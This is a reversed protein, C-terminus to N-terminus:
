FAFIFSELGSTTKANFRTFSSVSMAVFFFFNLLDM